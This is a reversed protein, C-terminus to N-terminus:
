KTEANVAALAKEALIAHIEKTPHVQDWYLYGTCDKAPAGSRKKSQQQYEIDAMLAAKLSPTNLILDRMKPDFDALAANTRLTANNLSRTLYGGTYCAEQTNTLKYKEPHAILDDFIKSIDVTIIKIDPNKQRLKNLQEELLKNHLAALQSTNEQIGLAKSSPTKGLDPLNLVLFYKAGIWVLLDIDQMLFDVAKKPLTNVDGGSLYDNAGAWVVFLANGKTKMLSRACFDWMQFWISLPLRSLTIGWVISTGGVAYDELLPRKKPDPYYKEYYKENFLEVWTPGNSFRGSFYPPSKPMKNLSKAYLNGNDSLSDGFIIIRDFKPQAVTSDDGFATLTSFTIALILLIFIRKM